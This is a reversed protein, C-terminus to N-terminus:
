YNGCPLHGEHMKRGAYRNARAYVSDVFGGGCHALGWGKSETADTNTISWAHVHDTRFTPELDWTYRAVNKFHVHDVRVTANPKTSIVAVGQRHANKCTSDHFRVNGADKVYLCDAGVGLRQKKSAKMGRLFSSNDITVNKIEVNSAGDVSIEQYTGGDVVQGNKTITLPKPPRDASRAAGITVFGGGVAAAFVAVCALARNRFRLVRRMDAGNPSRFASNLWTAIGKGGNHM